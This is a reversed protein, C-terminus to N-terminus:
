MDQPVILPKKIEEKNNLDANTDVVNIQKNVNPINHVVHPTEPPATIVKKQSVNLQKKLKNIGYYILFLAVPTLVNNFINSGVYLEDLM